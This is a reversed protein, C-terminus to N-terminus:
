GPRGSAPVSGIRRSIAPQRTLLRRYGRDETLRLLRRLMKKDAGSEPPIPDLVRALRAVPVPPSM